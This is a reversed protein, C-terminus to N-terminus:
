QDEWWNGYKSSSITMGVSFRLRDYSYICDILIFVSEGKVVTSYFIYEYTRFAKSKMRFLHPNIGILLKLVFLM